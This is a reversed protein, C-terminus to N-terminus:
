DERFQKREQRMLYGSLSIIRHASKLTREASKVFGKEYMDHATSVISTTAILFDTINVNVKGDFQGLNVEVELDDCETNCAMDKGEERFMSEGELVGLSWIMNLTTKLKGCTPVCENCDFPIKIHMVSWIGIIM